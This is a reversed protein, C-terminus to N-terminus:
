CSQWTTSRLSDSAEVPSKPKSSGGKEGRIEVQEAAGMSEELCLFVAERATHTDM